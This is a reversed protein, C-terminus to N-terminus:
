SDISCFGFVNLERHSLLTDQNCMAGVSPWWRELGIKTAAYRGRNYTVNQSAQSAGDDRFGM